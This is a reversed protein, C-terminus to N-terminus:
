VISLKGDTQQGRVETKSWSGTSGAEDVEALQGGGGDVHGPALGGERVAYNFAETQDILGACRHITFSENESTVNKKEASLFRSSAESFFFAEHM